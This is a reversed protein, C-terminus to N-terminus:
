IYFVKFDNLRLCALRSKSSNLACGCDINIYKAKTLNSNDSFIELKNHLNRVITHGAVICRDDFYCFPGIDTIRNWVFQGVDDITDGTDDMFIKGHSYNQDPVSHTLYFMKNNVVLDCIALPLTKIYEFLEEQIEESLELYQLYTSQGGNMALWRKSFADFMAMDEEKCAKLYSYMLHEHNGMLLTFRADNKIYCMIKIGDPGRDIVDGLVYVHDDEKLDIVKIMSLFKDYLGHIDSMVYVSM